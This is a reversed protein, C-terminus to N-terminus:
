EWTTSAGHLAMAAEAGIGDAPLVIADVRYERSHLVEGQKLALRPLAVGGSRDLLVHFEALRCNAIVNRQWREVVGSM